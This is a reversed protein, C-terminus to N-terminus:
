HAGSPPGAPACWAPLLAPSVLGGWCHPPRAHHWCPVASGRWSCQQTFMLCSVATRQGYLKKAIALVQPFAESSECPLCSTASATSCSRYISIMGGSVGVHGICIVPAADTLIRNSKGAQCNILNSQCVSLCVGLWQCGQSIGRVEGYAKFMDRLKDETVTDPLGGVYVARVQLM